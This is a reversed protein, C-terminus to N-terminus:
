GHRFIITLKNGGVDLKRLRTCNRLTSPLEGIFNNNRLHLIELRDLSGLTPPIIGSFKNNALDLVTLESINIWCNPLEVELQNDSLDLVLFILANFHFISGSFMTKSIKLEEPLRRFQNYSLDLRELSSPLGPSQPYFGNLKNNNLILTKLSSFETVDPLPGNLENYSIDLVLVELFILEGFADPGELRNYSLDISTLSALEELFPFRTIHHLLSTQNMLNVGSLGLYSLLSLHSLWELNRIRLDNFGLDLTHLDTLNGLECPVEDTFNSDLVKLHRLKKFSSFFGRRRGKGPSKLKTRRQPRKELSGNTEGGDM